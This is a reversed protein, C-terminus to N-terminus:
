WWVVGAFSPMGRLRTRSRALYGLGAVGGLDPAAGMHRVGM